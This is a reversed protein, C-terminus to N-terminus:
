ANDPPTGDPWVCTTDGLLFLENLHNTRLGLKYGDVRSVVRLTDEDQGSVTYGNKEWWGRLRSFHSKIDSEPINVVQYIRSAFKKREAGGDGPEECASNEHRAFVEFEAEPPFAARTRNMHEELKDNAQQITRTRQMDSGPTDPEQGCAVALSACM